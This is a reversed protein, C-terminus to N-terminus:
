KEAGEDLSSKQAEQEEWMEVLIQEITTNKEKAKAEIFEYVKPSLETIATTGDPLNYEFHYKNLDFLKDQCDQCTGSISFEKKALEDRFFTIEQKCLSCYLKNNM